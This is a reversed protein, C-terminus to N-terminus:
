CLRPVTDIVDFNDGHEASVAFKEPHKQRGDHVLRSEDVLL